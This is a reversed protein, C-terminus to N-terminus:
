EDQALKHVVGLLFLVGVAAGVMMLFEGPSGGSGGKKCGRFGEMDNKLRNKTCDQDQYNTIPYGDPCRTPNKLATNYEDFSLDNAYTWRKQQGWGGGPCIGSNLDPKQGNDCTITEPNEVYFAGSEPNKFRGNQDGIYQNTLACIPTGKGFVAGLIPKPDMAAQADELMGPGLGRLSYGLERLGKGVQKGLANGTPIGELYTWMDAGNSCKQGTRIWTNVGYPKVYPNGYTMGSTPAGFGIIDIYAAAGKAADIVSNLSSDDRVNLQGPTPINDAFSYDPGFVGPVKDPINPKPLIDTRNELGVQKSLFDM